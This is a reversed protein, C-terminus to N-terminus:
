TRWKAIRTLLFLLMGGSAIALVAPIMATTVSYRYAFVGTLLITLFLALYTGENRGIKMLLASILLFGGSGVGSWLSAKSGSSYYGYYGFGIVVIGYLFVSWILSKKLM